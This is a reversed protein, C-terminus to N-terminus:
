RDNIYDSCHEAYGVQNESAEEMIKIGLDILQGSQSIVEKLEEECSPCKNDYYYDSPSQAEVEIEIDELCHPCQCEYNFNM